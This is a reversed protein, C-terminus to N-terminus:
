NDNYIIIEIKFNDNFILFVVQFGIFALLHKWVSFAAGATFVLSVYQPLTLDYIGGVPHQSLNISWKVLIFKKKISIMRHRPAQSPATLVSLVTPPVEQTPPSDLAGRLQCDYGKMWDVPVPGRSQWNREWSQLTRRHPASCTHADHLACPVSANARLSLYPCPSCRLSVTFVSHKVDNGSSRSFGPATKQCSPFWHQKCCASHAARVPHLKNLGGCHLITFSTPQLSAANPM